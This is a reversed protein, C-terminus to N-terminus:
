ANSFHFTILVLVLLNCANTLSPTQIVSTCEEKEDVPAAEYVILQLTAHTNKFTAGDELSHM